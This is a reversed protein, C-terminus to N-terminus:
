LVRWFILADEDGLGGPIRGVREFGAEEYMPGSPNSAGVRLFLMARFGRRRAEALSHELLARGVGRRRHASPVLYGANAIDSGREEYAPRIFYSGALSDGDLAVLVCTKDELWARRFTEERAPPRRPFEGREVAEAWAAFLAPEDSALVPRVVLELGARTIV